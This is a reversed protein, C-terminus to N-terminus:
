NSSTSDASSPSPTELKSGLTDMAKNLLARAKQGEPSEIVEGALGAAAIAYLTDKSPVFLAGCWMCLTICCGIVFPWAAGKKCSDSMGASIAGGVVFILVAGIGLFWEAKDSVGAWYIFSQVDKM